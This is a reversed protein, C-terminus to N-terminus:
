VLHCRWKTEAGWDMEDVLAERLKLAYETAAEKMNIVAEGAKKAAELYAVETKQVIDRKAWMESMKEGMTVRLDRVEELKEQMEPSELVLLAQKWTPVPREWVKTTKM